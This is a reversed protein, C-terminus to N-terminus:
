INTAKNDYDATMNIRGVVVCFVKAMGDTNIPVGDLETMNGDGTSTLQKTEFINVRLGEAM